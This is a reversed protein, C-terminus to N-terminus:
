LHDMKAALVFDAETLGDVQHTWIRARVRGWGLDFEAHHGEQECVAGARNVFALAGAFDKFRWEKELHHGDVLAWDRIQTQLARAREPALPPVGGRCPECSRDALGSM